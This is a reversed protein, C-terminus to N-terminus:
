DRVRTYRVLQGSGLRVSTRGREATTGATRQFPNLHCHRSATARTWSGLPPDHRPGAQSSVGQCGRFPEDRKSPLNEYISWVLNFNVQDTIDSGNYSVKSM